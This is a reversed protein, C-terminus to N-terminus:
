NNGGFKKELVAKYEDAHFDGKFFDLKACLALKDALGRAVKGADSRRARQVLPHNFIHGHKPSKAGSRLHRFLAKEAGLLQITSAPMIALRRLSGAGALLRAAISTGALAQVNPAREKFAHELYSLIHAKEDYLTALQKAFNQIPIYDVESVLAGMSKEAAFEKLLEIHSKEAIFKVYREHDSIAHDLEPLVYAHWERLRKTLTNLQVTLEDYSALAQIIMTDATVAEAINKKTLTILQERIKSFDSMFFFSPPIM